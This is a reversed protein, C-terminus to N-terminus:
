ALIGSASHVCYPRTHAAPLAPYIDLLPRRYGFTQCSENGSNSQQHANSQAHGYNRSTIRRKSTKLLSICSVPDGGDGSAECGDRRNDNSPDSLLESPLGLSRPAPLESLSAEPVLSRDSSLACISLLPKRPFIFNNGCAKEHHPASRTLRPIGSTCQLLNETFKWSGTAIFSTRAILRGRTLISPIRWLIFAKPVAFAAHCELKLHGNGVNICHVPTLIEFGRKVLLADLREVYQLTLNEPIARNRRGLDRAQPRSRLLISILSLIGFLLHAALSEICQVVLSDREDSLNRVVKGISGLLESSCKLRSPFSIDSM